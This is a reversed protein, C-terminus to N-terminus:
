MKFLADVDLANLEVGDLSRPSDVMSLTASDMSAGTSGLRRNPASIEQEAHDQQTPYTSLQDLASKSTTPSVRRLTPVTPLGLVSTSHEAREEAM